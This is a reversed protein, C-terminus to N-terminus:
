IYKMTEMHIHSSSFHVLRKCYGEMLRISPDVVILDPVEELITCCGGLPLEYGRQYHISAQCEEENVEFEELVHLVSHSEHAVM